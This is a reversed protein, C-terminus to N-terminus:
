EFSFKPSAFLSFVFFFFTFKQVLFTEYVFHVGNSDECGSVSLFIYNSPFIGLVKPSIFPYLQGWIRQKDFSGQYDLPYAEGLMIFLICCLYSDKNYSMNELLVYWRRM